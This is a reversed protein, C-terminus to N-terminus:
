AHMILKPENKIYVCQNITNQPTKKDKRNQYYLHQAHVIGAIWQINQCAFNM